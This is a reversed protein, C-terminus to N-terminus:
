FRKLVELRVLDAEQLVYDEEFLHESFFKFVLAKNYHDRIDKELDEVVDSADMHYAGSKGSMRALSEAALSGGAKIKDCAEKLAPLDAEKKKGRGNHYEARELCHKVLEASTIKLKFGEIM